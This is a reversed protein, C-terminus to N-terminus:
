TYEDGELRALPRPQVDEFRNVVRKVGQTLKIVNFNILLGVRLDTLRLYTILQAEHIPLLQDISKLEVVVCEEVLLDLRLQNLTRRGKYVIPITKEHQFEIGRNEFEFRLCESYVAELLGPGLTKHVEIAGGIVKETIENENM